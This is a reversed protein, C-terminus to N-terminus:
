ILKRHHSFLDGSRSVHGAQLPVLHLEQHIGQTKRVENKLTLLEIQFFYLFVYIHLLDASLNYTLTLVKGQSPTVTAAEGPYAPAKLSM